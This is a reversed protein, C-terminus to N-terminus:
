AWNSFHTRRLDLPFRIHPPSNGVDRREEVRREEAVAISTTGAAAATKPDRFSASFPSKEVAVAAKHCKPIRDGRDRDGGSPRRRAAAAMGGEDTPATATTPRPRAHLASLSSCHVCFSRVSTARMAELETAIALVAVSASTLCRVVSRSDKTAHGASRGIALHRRRLRERLPLPCRSSSYFPSQAALSAAAASGRGALGSQTSMLLHSRAFRDGPRDAHRNKAWSVSMGPSLHM